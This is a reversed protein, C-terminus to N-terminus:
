VLNVTGANGMRAEAADAAAAVRVAQDMEARMAEERAAAEAADTENKYKETSFVCLGFFM